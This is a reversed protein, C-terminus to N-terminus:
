HCGRVSGPFDGGGREEKIFICSFCNVMFTNITVTHVHFWLTIKYCTWTSFVNKIIYLKETVLVGLFNHIQLNWYHNIDRVFLHNDYFPLWLLATYAEYMFDTYWMQLEKYLHTISIFTSEGTFKQVTMQM